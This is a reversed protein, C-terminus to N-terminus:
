AAPKRRTLRSWLAAPARGDIVALGAALLAYGAAAEPGLREGLLVAGLTVAVPPILLTVLMTNAAGVKAVLRYYLLYSLATCVVAYWAIAAWVGASLDLRPAGEVTAALPIAMISSATLM